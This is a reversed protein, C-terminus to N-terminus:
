LEFTFLNSSVDTKCDSSANLEVVSDTTLAVYHRHCIFSTGTHIPIQYPADTPRYQSLFLRASLIDHGLPM